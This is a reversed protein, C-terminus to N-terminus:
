PSLRDLFYPPFTNLFASLCYQVRAETCMWVVLVCVCKCSEQCEIEKLTMQLPSYAEILKNM